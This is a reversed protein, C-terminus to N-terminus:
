RGAPRRGRAPAAAPAPAAAVPAAAGQQQPLPTVSISPLQANVQALVDNTIDAADSNAMTANKAMVITAGRQRLIVETIPGLREGIQRNINAQISQLRQQTGQLEAAANNQQQEFAQVRPGLATEAQTRAAGTLGQARQAEAQLPQGASQIQSNLQDRRQAFQQVQAQFQAAATRCANCQSAVREVDVILVAPGSQAQAAAPALTVLAALAAGFSYRNM